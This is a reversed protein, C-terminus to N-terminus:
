VKKEAPSATSAENESLLPVQVYTEKPIYASTAKRALDVIGSFGERVVVQLKFDENCSYERCTEPRQGWIM